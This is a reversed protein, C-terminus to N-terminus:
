SRSRETASAEIAAEHVGLLQRKRAHMLAMWEHQWPHVIIDVFDVLDEAAIGIGVADFGIAGRKSAITWYIASCFKM